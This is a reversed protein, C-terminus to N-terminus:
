DSTDKNKEAGKETSTCKDKYKDKYGGETKDQATRDHRIKNHVTTDQRRTKDLRTNDTQERQDTYVQKNKDNTEESKGRIRWADVGL